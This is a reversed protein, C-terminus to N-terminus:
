GDKKENTNESTQGDNKYFFNANQIIKNIKTIEANFMEQDVMSKTGAKKKMYVGRIDSARRMFVGYLNKLEEKLRARSLLMIGFELMRIGEIESLYRDNDAALQFHDAARKLCDIESTPIDPWIDTLQLLTDKFEYFSAGMLPSKEKFIRMHGDNVEKLNVSSSKIQNFLSVVRQLNAKYNLYIDRKYIKKEKEFNQQDELNKILGELGTKITAVGKLM